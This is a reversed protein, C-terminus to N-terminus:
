GDTQGLLEDLYCAPNEQIKDVIRAYVQTTELKSHGLMAGIADLKAGAFRAWTAASHRLSRCSVGEAKLGVKDLYRDVLSRVARTSLRTGPAKKSAGGPRTTVFLAPEDPQALKGRAALWIMLTAQTGATLYVTRVKKGKGLVRLTGSEGAEGDLDDVDLQAVEAVRLGHRGMLALMGRDRQGQPTDPSPAALLRRLGDLPVYRDGDEPATKDRPAKLGAAPNDTRIGSWALADYLRRVIALKFAITGPAYAQAVLHHRHAQLDRETALKPNLGQDAVWVFFARVQALYNRVTQPSADGDAVSLRLFDSFVL